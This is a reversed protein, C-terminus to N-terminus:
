MGVLQASYGKAKVVSLLKSSGTTDPNYSVVLLHPQNFRPAIVGEVGRVESELEQQQRIELKDTAQM